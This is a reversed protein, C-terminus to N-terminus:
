QVEELEGSLYFLGIEGVGNVYFGGRRQLLLGAGLQQAARDSVQITDGSCYEAMQTAIRPAQGVVQEGGEKRGLSALGAEGVDLGMRVAIRDEPDSARTFAQLKMALGAIDRMAQEKNGETEQSLGAAVVLRDGMRLVRVGEDDGAWDDAICAMEHLLTPALPDDAVRELSAQRSTCLIVLAAVNNYSEVSFETISTRDISVQQERTSAHTAKREISSSSSQDSARDKAPQKVPLGESSSQSFRFGLQTSLARACGQLVTSWGFNVRNGEFLLLGNVRGGTMTPSVIVSDHHLPSLYLEDLERLEPVTSVDAAAILELETLVQNLEPMYRLDLLQGAVHGHGLRDYADLCRLSRDELIWVSVRLVQIAEAVSETLRQIAQDDNPDLLGADNSLRLYTEGVRDFESQRELVSVARRDSRLNFFVVFGAFVALVGLVAASISATERTRKDVFGVYDDEPVTIVVRWDTGLSEPLLSGSGRYRVGDAEFEYVGPGQIRLMNHARTMASDDLEEIGVTRLKDGEEKMTLTIDPHAVVQGRGDVIVARGSQGIELENLFTCLEDLEIDVGLVGILEGDPSRLPHAATVGPKRDTFLIYIETWFLGDRDVAGKYWPRVRPDYGQYEAEEIQEVQDAPNRRIWRVGPTQGRFDIIKTDISGDPMKKPMVFSGDAGAINVMALQPITKLVDVGTTQLALPAPGEVSVPKGTSAVDFGVEVSVGSQSPDFSAHNVKNSGLEVMQQAPKLYAVVESEIRDSTTRIVQDSLALADRRNAEHNSYLVGFLVAALLVLFIIPLAIRLWRRRRLRDAQRETESLEIIDTRAM